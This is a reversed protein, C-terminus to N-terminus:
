SSFSITATPTPFGGGSSGAGSDFPLPTVDFPLPTIFPILTWTATPQPTNTPAPTPTPNNIMVTVTRYAFGGSNSFMALRIRYQGNPFATSRTDWNGLTANVQQLGQPQAIVTFTNPSAASAVEIQYRNFDQANVTGTIPVIGQVTQGEAPSQISIIPQITSTTCASTPATQLTTPNIGLAAATAAGAGSRLWDIAAPDDVNFFQRTEINTSCNENAVLSTWTDVNLSVLFSQDPAPPPQTDLFVENRISGCARSVNADYRAGTLTCIQATAVGGPNAFPQPQRGALAARLTTNWVPSAALRNTNFTQNNDNRGLWVGVVANRTFGLTWLDRNGESAGAMAGVLGAYEPLLLPSNGGVSPTRADNDSLITQLLYAVSPQIAQAPQARPTPLPIEVDNADTISLIAYPQARLGNNAITGYAEVLDILRTETMGEATRLSFAAEPLFDLGVRAATERFPEIGTFYLAKVAPITYANALASRLSVIGRAAGDANAPTYDPNTFRTTVDWLVSAPTYYGRTGDARNIGELATTYVIPKITDGPAQYTFVDNVQGDIESNNYDASGVMAMIAGDGPNMVLVSGNNVGTGSLARLQVTLANQATDQMSPVLTTRITFGRRFMEGPGFQAEVQQQVYDVFHPYRRDSDRPRYARSEVRSKQVAVQGGVVDATTVCFPANQGPLPLCGVEAMRNLVVNMQDFAVDRFLVPDYVSPSEIMGALMASEALNLDLAPKQFYFQSAAEIGYSQNGFFIENLYLQLIFDKDYTRAIEAAIVIEQLRREPNASTEQLVLGRAIQETITSGSALTSGTYNQAIAGAVTLPDWGPDSFYRENELSVVAHILEPAIEQLTVTTRAGGDRSNLEAILTTNDAALIRVTRFQPQYNALAVIEDRWPEAFNNYTVVTFIAGCAGLLLLAGIILAAVIGVSRTTSARQQEVATRYLDSGTGADTVPTAGVPTYSGSTYGTSPSPISAVDSLAPSVVTPAVGMSPVTRESAARYLDIPVTADLNGDGYASRGVQTLEPDRVPVARPLPQSFPDIGPTGTVAATPITRGAEFDSAASRAPQDMYPLGAGAAASAGGPRVDADLAPPRMPTWANNEYKYWQDSQAGIMWWIRGDELVMLKKLEAELTERTILGAAFQGKLSRARDESARYKAALERQADSAAGTVGTAAGVGTDAPASGSTVDLGASQLRELQQRAYEAADDGVAASSTTRAQLRELERKAYEAPDLGAEVQTGVGVNSASQVATPANAAPANALSQLAVLESIGVREDDDDDDLELDNAEGESEDLATEADDADLTLMPENATKPEAEFPLVDSQTPPADVAPEDGAFPLPVAGEDTPLVADAEAQAEGAIAELEDDYPLITAEADTPEVAPVEGTTTPLAGVEVDDAEGEGPRIISPPIITDSRKPM